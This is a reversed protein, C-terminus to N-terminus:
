RCRTHAVSQLMRCVGLGPTHHLVPTHYYLQRSPSPGAAVTDGALGRCARKHSDALLDLKHGALNHVIASEWAMRPRIHDSRSERHYPVCRCALNRLLVLHSRVAVAQLIHKRRGIGNLSELGALPQRMDHM